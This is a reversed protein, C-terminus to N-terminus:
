VNMFTSQISQSLRHLFAVQRGQVSLSGGSCLGEPCLGGPCLGGPCLYGQVSVGQCLGGPRVGGGGLCLGEQVCVGGQVSVAGAGHSLFWGRRWPCLGKRHVSDCVPTFVNGQRLKM